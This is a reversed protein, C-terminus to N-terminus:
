QWGWRCRPNFYRLSVRQPRFGSDPTFDPYLAFDAYAGFLAGTDHTAELMPEHLASV